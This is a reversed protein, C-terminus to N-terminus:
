IYLNLCWVCIVLTGKACVCECVASVACGDAPAHSSLLTLLVTHSHTYTYTETGLLGAAALQAFYMVFASVRGGSWSHRTCPCILRSYASLQHIVGMHLMLVKSSKRLIAACCDKLGSCIFQYQLHFIQM